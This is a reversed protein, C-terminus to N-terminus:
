TENYVPLKGDYLRDGCSCYVCRGVQKWGMHSFHVSPIVGTWQGYIEALKEETFRPDLLETYGTSRQAQSAHKMMPGDPNM